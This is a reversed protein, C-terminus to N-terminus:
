FYFMWKVMEASRRELKADLEAFQRMRARFAVPHRTAPRLPAACSRPIFGDVKLERM